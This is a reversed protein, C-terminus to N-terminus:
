MLVKEDKVGGVQAWVKERKYGSVVLHSKDTNLKRYNNEFWCLALETNEELLRLVNEISEDCLYPTTDDAFNCVDINKLTSFLDNLYINFLLPGLVAGQPVGQILDAWLSFSNNIKVRQKRNSLYSSLIFHPYMSFGYSHLKALLFEHNFTDFAKGNCWCIAYYRIDKEM